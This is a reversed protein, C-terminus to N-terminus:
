PFIPEFNLSEAVQRVYEEMPLGGRMHEMDEVRNPAVEGKLLADIGVEGIVGKGEFDYAISQITLSVGSLYNELTPELDRRQISIIKDLALIDVMQEDKKFRPDGYGTREFDWGPPIIPIDKVGEALFDWDEMQFPVDRLFYNLIRYVAGGVLWLRGTSNAKAIEHAQGFAPNESLFEEYLSVAETLDVM